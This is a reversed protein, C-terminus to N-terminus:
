GSGDKPRAVLNPQPWWMQPVNQFKVNGTMEFRGYPDRMPVSLSIEVNGSVTASTPGTTFARLPSLNRRHTTRSNWDRKHLLLDYAAQRMRGILPQVERPKVLPKRRSKKEHPAHFCRNRLKFWARVEADTYGFRTDVSELVLRAMVPVNQAVEDFLQEFVLILDRFTGMPHPNAIADNFLAVGEVRDEAAQLALSLDTGALFALSSVAGHPAQLGSRQAFWARDEDCMPEFFVCQLSPSFVECPTARALARANALFEIAEELREREAVPVAVLGQADYQPLETIPLVATVVIWHTGNPTTANSHERVTAGQVVVEPLLAVTPQRGSLRLAALRVLNTQM